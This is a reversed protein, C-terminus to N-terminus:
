SRKIFIINKIETYDANKEVRIIKDKLIVDCTVTGIDTELLASYNGHVPIIQRINTLNIEYINHENRISVDENIQLVYASGLMAKAESFEGKRILQRIRTSSVIEGKYSVPEVIDIEIEPSLDKLTKSNSERNYGFRFNHGLAIKIVRLSNFLSFWFEKGTIKSFEHSFDIMILLRIGFLELKAVKQEPTLINGTFPRTKLILAPNSKFTVLCPITKDDRHKIAEMLRQHGIHVGDFAGITLAVAEKVKTKGSLLDEWDIIRM